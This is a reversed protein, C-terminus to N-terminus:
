VQFSGFRKAMREKKELYARRAAVAPEEDAAVPRRSAVSSQTHGLLVPYMPQREHSDPSTRREEIRVRRARFADRAAIASSIGGFDPRDQQLQTQQREQRGAFHRGLMVPYAGGVLGQSRLCSAQNAQESNRAAEIPETAYARGLLGVPTQPLASVEREAFFSSSRCLPTGPTKPTRPTKPTKSGLGSRKPTVAELIAASKSAQGLIRLSLVM